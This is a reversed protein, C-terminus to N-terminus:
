PKAVRRAIADLGVIAAKDGAQKVLDCILQISEFGPDEVVLCSPHALFDFVGGTDIARTVARRIAKLFYALKWYHTRFATVDSIPSMPVEVLGSPYVFPQAQEQAKIIGAYVEEGPEEKPTGSSHAPYKSSVWTFGLDLLMQQLDKRDELGNSFGGPTRFGNVTIGTREKLAATTMRINERILQETTMGRTLWPSRQFRYQTEEPKTAKMHVHDYTHNGVPHGEAALEKLWDVNAQELVQGVCFCHIVGGRQKVRRCAEVTYKKTADDLNGKQYNWELMDRRPYQASMELDLTIAILAKRNDAADALCGLGAALSSTIFRRRTLM